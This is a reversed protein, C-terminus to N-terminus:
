THLCAIVTFSRKQAAQTYRDTRALPLSILWQKSANTGTILESATIKCLLDYNVKPVSPPTRIHLGQKCTCLHKLYLTYIQPKRGTLGGTSTHLLETQVPVLTHKRTHVPMRNHAHVSPHLGDWLSGIFSVPPAFGVPRGGWGGCGVEKSARESRGEGGGAENGGKNQSDPLPLAAFCLSGRDSM